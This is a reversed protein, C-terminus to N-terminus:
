GTVAYLRWRDPVGKLEHEGHEEFVLGSGVVLDKVTQSVLVESPGALAGIRAGINVALGGIKGDITQCEGTHLGARLEVRVSRAGEVIAQACRIARAPGDFSAFFGDGATDIETGRFRALHARVAAHHREVLSRWGADGLASARETSDVMDTFLVTALVREFITETERIASLFRRVAAIVARQNSGYVLHDNGPLVELRAGPIHAALYRASEVPEIPDGLAHLILTPVHVAPLVARVDTHSWKLMSAVASAPTGTAREFRAWFEAAGPDSSLGPSAWPLSARAREVTGWGSLTEKAEKRWDEESWGWSIEESRSWAPAAAWLVLGICRDPYTAAFPIAVFGCEDTAFVVVRDSGAADLVSNVDDMLTELPPVDPPAFRESLGQGRLDMVILRSIGGIGELFRAIPASQWNVDINSAYGQLYVVDVPGSGVVQYAVAVDPTVWAYRTEPEDQVATDEARGMATAVKDVRRKALSGAHGSLM